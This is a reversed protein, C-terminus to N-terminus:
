EAAELISMKHAIIASSPGSFIFLLSADDIYINRNQLMNLQWQLKFLM